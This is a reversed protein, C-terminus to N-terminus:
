SKSEIPPTHTAAKGLCSIPTSIIWGRGFLMGAEEEGLLNQTNNACFSMSVCSWCLDVVGSSHLGPCSYLYCHHCLEQTCGFLYQLFTARKESGQDRWRTTPSQKIGAPLFWHFAQMHVCFTHDQLASEMTLFDIGQSTPHSRLLLSLLWAQSHMKIHETSPKLLGLSPSWSIM